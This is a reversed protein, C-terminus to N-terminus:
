YRVKYPKFEKGELLFKILKYCDRRLLQRYSVSRNLEVNKVTERLQEDWLTILKKRATDKLLIGNSSPRFDNDNIEKKRLVRFILRDVMLPKFPEVLDLALSFRRSQPSHLYSIGPYLATRYLESVMATYLLSNLFSILANLPNDPPNYVRRFNNAIDGLWFHWADYYIRAALGEMGMIKEPSDMQPIQSQIAVLRDSHKKLEDNGRRKYYGIISLMNHNKAEVISTCISLRKRKDLFAQGQAIVLDGSLQVAHPYYTGSHHGYYNFIHIPIKKQALFNLLKTNIRVESFLYIANITEVPFSYKLFVANDDELAEEIDHNEEITQDNSLFKFELTNDKRNLQGPKTLYLNM